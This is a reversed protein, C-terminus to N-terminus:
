RLLCLSSSPSVLLICYLVNLSRMENAHIIWSSPWSAGSHALCCLLRVQAATWRAQQLAVPSFVENILLSLSFLAQPLVLIFCNNILHETLFKGDPADRSGCHSMGTGSSSQPGSLGGPSPVSPARPDQATSRAGRAPHHWCLSCRGGIAM